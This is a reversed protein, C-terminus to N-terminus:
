VLRQRDAGGPPGWCRERGAHRDPGPESISSVGGRDEGGGAPLAKGKRDMTCCLLRPLQSTNRESMLLKKRRGVEGIITVRCSGGTLFPM